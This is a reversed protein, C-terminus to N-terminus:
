IDLNLKEIELPEISEEISKSNSAEAYANICKANTRKKNITLPGNVCGGECAMGEIFNGNLRGFKALKLAKECEVLGSCVVPKVDINLGETEIIHKVAETVGGSCAFARGFKTATDHPKAECLSVDIDSADIYAQLEDFGMVYDVDGVLEEKQIEMKKSICPGIFIIRSNKDHKKILRATAIM